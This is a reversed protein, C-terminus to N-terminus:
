PAEGIAYDMERNGTVKTVATRSKGKKALNKKSQALSEATKEATRDLYIKVGLLNTNTRESKRGCKKGM